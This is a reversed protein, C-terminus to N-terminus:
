SRRDKMEEVTKERSFSQCSKLLVPMVESVLNHNVEFRHCQFALEFSWRTDVSPILRVTPRDGDM